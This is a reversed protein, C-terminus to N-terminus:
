RDLVAIEKLPQCLFALRRRLEVQAASTPSEWLHLLFLLDRTM